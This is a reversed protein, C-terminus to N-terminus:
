NHRFQKVPDPRRAPRRVRVRVRCSRFSSSTDSAMREMRGSCISKRWEIWHWHPMGYLFGPSPTSSHSRLCPFADRRISAPDAMSGRVPSKTRSPRGYPSFGRNTSMWRAVSATRVPLGTTSTSSDIVAKARDSPSSVLPWCNRANFSWSARSAAAVTRM